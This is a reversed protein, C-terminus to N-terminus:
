GEREQQFSNLNSDGDRCKSMDIPKEDLLTVAQDLKAKMQKVRDKGFYTRDLKKLEDILLRVRQEVPQEIFFSFHFSKPSSVVTPM